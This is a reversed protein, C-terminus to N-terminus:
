YARFTEDIQRGNLVHNVVKRMSHPLLRGGALPPFWKNPTLVIMRGDNKLVRRCESLVASPKQVHELVNQSFILDVSDDRLPIRQEIDGNFLQINDREASEVECDVGYCMGFRDALQKLHAARFGCGLDLVVAAPDAHKTVLDLFHRRPRTEPPYWKLGIQACREYTRRLGNHIRTWIM